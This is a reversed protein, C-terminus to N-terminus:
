QHCCMTYSRIMKQSYCWCKGPQRMSEPCQFGECLRWGLKGNPRRFYFSIWRPSFSWNKRWSLFSFYLVSALSTPVGTVRQHHHRFVEGESFNVLYSNFGYSLLNPILIRWFSLLLFLSTVTYMSYRNEESQILTTSVNILYLHLVAWTSFERLDEVKRM